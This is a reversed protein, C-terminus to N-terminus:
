PLWARWLWVVTHSEFAGSPSTDSGADRTHGCDAYGSHTRGTRVWLVARIGGSATRTVKTSSSPLGITGPGRLREEFVGTSMPRSRQRVHRKAGGEGALGAGCTV